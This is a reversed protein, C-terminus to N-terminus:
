PKTAANLERLLKAKRFGLERTVMAMRDREKQQQQKTTVLLWPPVQQHTTASTLTLLMDISHLEDNTQKSLQYIEMLLELAPIHTQHSWEWASLASTLAGSTDKLALCARAQGCRAMVLWLTLSLSTFSLPTQYGDRQQIVEDRQAQRKRASDSAMTIGKEYCQIAESYQKRELADHGQQVLDYGQILNEPIFDGQNIVNNGNDDQSSSLQLLVEILKDSNNNNDNNNNNDSKPNALVRRTTHSSAVNLVVPGQGCVSHCNGPEVTVHPPALAQLKALTALAGDALCGPSCCVQLINWTTSTTTSTTSTTPNSSSLALCCSPFALLAVALFLMDAFLVIPISSLFSVLAKTMSTPINWSRKLHLHRLGEPLTREGDKQLDRGSEVM